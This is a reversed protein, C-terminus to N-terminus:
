RTPVGVVAPPSVVRCTVDPVTRKAMATLAGPGGIEVFATAGMAALSEQSARWRVPNVLHDILRTRWGEGDSYVGADGNGVVPVDGDSLVVGTLAAALPACAPAMLPTHFAGGVKLSVSKRVGLETARALAADLGGPTGAIVVQGPANDNALWCEGPAAAAAEEAQETTAGLLAAMRGPNADAAAQTVEARRAVLTVGADFSLVGSAVLATLQGLSHGAMAVVPPADSGVLPQSNWTILSTIFVALQADRTRALQAEDAHLILHAVDEGLLESARDVVWWGPSHQWPAGMGPAQGGQGAFM